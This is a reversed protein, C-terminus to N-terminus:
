QTYFNKHNSSNMSFNSIEKQIILKQGKNFWKDFKAEMDQVKSKKHPKGFKWIIRPLKNCKHRFPNLYIGVAIYNTNLARKYKNRMEPVAKKRVM